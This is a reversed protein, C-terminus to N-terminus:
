PWIPRYLQDKTDMPKANMFEVLPQDFVNLFLFYWFTEFLLVQVAWASLVM